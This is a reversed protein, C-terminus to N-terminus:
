YRKERFSTTAIEGTETDAMVVKYDNISVTYYETFDNEVAKDLIRLADEISLGAGVINRRAVLEEEGCANESVYDFDEQVIYVKM